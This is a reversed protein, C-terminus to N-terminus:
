WNKNSLTINIYVQKFNQSDYVGEATWILILIQELSGKKKTRQLFYRQPRFGYIQSQFWNKCGFWVMELQVVGSELWVM